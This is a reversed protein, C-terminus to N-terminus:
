DGELLEPNEHINGIVKLETEDETPYKALLPSTDPYHQLLKHRQKLWYECRQQNWEVAYPFRWDTRDSAEHEPAGHWIEYLVIDGGFIEGGNKSKLGTSVRVDYRGRETPHIEGGFCWLALGSYDLVINTSVWQKDKTDWVRFKAM